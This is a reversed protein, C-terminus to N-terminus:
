PGEMGVPTLSAATFPMLIAWFAAADKDVIFDEMPQDHPPSSGDVDTFGYARALTTTTFGGGTRQMMQPDAAVAAVARGSFRPWEAFALDIGQMVLRGDGRTTAQAVLSETKVL